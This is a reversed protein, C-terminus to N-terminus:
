SSLPKRAVLLTNTHPTTDDRRLVQGDMVYVEAAPSFRHEILWDNTIARSNNTVDFGAATLYDVWQQHTFFCFTEHMESQWSNVYDKKALFECLAARTLVGYEVDGITEYRVAIGDGEDHRFDHVFRRFRAASSLSRLWDALSMGSPVALADEPNDGDDRRFKVYVEQTPNEPAVVDYNIYVGGPALMDYVRRVFTDLQARGLYSEVEHTLAMTIITDFFNDGFLTSQMFNRQYFYVNANGFEGVSRRQQCIQYLPHAAEVGYFDSEFLNPKEALLKLTQGTACGIDLVKGPRVYDGFEAVKRWANDEFAQRYTQYDRTETIDGDDSSVLPDNYIDILLEGLNYRRYYELCPPYLQECIEQSMHWDRGTAIIQEVVDWPRSATTEGIENMEVTAIPFGLEEYMRIVAPTSCAVTTNDPLMAIDGQSKLRIEEILFHAFDARPQSNNITFVRCAIGMNAAAYEIVGLRREGSIPNRRTGTHNASTVAWVFEVSSIDQNEALISRELERLYEVQFQTILHHRGPFLVFHRSMYEM